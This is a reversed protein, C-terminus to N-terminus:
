LPVSPFKLKELSMDSNAQNIIEVKGVIQKIKEIVKNVLINPVSAGATLGTKSSLMDLKIQNPKDIQWTPVIEKAIEYLRLSNSSNKSGIVILSNVEKALKKVAWQRNQTAYCICSKKPNLINPFRSNLIAVIAKTDDISLTTQSVWALKNTPKIQINRATKQSDIVKISGKINPKVTKNFKNNPSSAFNAWGMSGTIEDHSIHGILFITYNKDSLNKITRHVSNVLPCTADIIELNKLKAQNIVKPSVGHASFVVQKATKPINDLSNVFVINKKTLYDVIYQNHVIQHYVYLKEAKPRIQRLSEVAEVARSVGACFGRPRALIIQVTKIPM